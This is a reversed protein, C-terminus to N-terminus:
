KERTESRTMAVRGSGIRGTINTLRKVGDSGHSKSCRKVRGSGVRGSGVRGSGVRGSRVRGSGGTERVRMVRGPRTM